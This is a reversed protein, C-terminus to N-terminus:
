EGPDGVTAAHFARHVNVVIDALEACQAPTIPIHQTDAYGTIAQGVVTVAAEAGDGAPGPSPEPAATTPAM